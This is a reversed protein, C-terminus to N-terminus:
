TINSIAKKIIDQFVDCCVKDQHYVVNIGKPALEFSFMEKAPSAKKCDPNICKLNHVNQAIHSQFREFDKM